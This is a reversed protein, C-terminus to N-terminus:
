SVLLEALLAGFDGINLVVQEAWSRVYLEKLKRIRVASLNGQVLGGALVTASRSVTERAPQDLRGSGKFAARFYYVRQAILILSALRGKGAPSWNRFCFESM